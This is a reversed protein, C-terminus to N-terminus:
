AKRRSKPVYEEGLPRFRNSDFYLWGHDPCWTGALTPTPPHFLDFACRKYCFRCKSQSRVTFEAPNRRMLVLQAGLEEPMAVIPGLPLAVIAREPTEASSDSM